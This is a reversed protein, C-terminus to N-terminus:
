DVAVDPLDPAHSNPNYVTEYWQRLTKGPHRRLCEKFALRDMAELVNWCWLPWYDKRFVGWMQGTGIARGDDGIESLVGHDRYAPSEHRKVHEWAEDITM